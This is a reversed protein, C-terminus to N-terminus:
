KAETRGSANSPARSPAAGAATKREIGRLKLVGMAALVLSEGLHSVVQVSATCAAWMVIAIGTYLLLLGILDGWHSEIFDRM